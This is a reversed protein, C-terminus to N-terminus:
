SRRWQAANQSVLPRNALSRLQRENGNLWWDLEGEKLLNTSVLHNIAGQEIAHKATEYVLWGVVGVPVVSLLLFFLMLRTTLRM